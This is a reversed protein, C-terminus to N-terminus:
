IDSESETREVRDDGSHDRRQDRALGNRKGEKGNRSEEVM